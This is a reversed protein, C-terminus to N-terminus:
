SVLRGVSMIVVTSFVGLHLCLCPLWKAYLIGCDKVFKKLFM